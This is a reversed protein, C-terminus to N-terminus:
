REPSITKSLLGRIEEALARRDLPLPKAALRLVFDRSRLRPVCCASSSEALRQGSKSGGLSAFASPLSWGWGPAPANRKKQRRPRYHLLFHRSKLARGSVLFPHISMRKTLRYHKPFAATSVAREGSHRAQREFPWAIVVKPV